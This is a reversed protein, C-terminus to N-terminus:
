VAYEGPRYHHLNDRVYAVTRALGQVRPVTSRWNLLDRARSPDAVLREVESTAPRIRTMDTEIRPSVGLIEFIEEALKGISIETGTGLQVVEGAYQDMTNGAALFGDVTDSVYTLDRTPHLAGLRVVGGVMAQAIIAPVIARASQRPGYTNFPRLVVARLGFSRHFSLVCQDAAIKSAAYPSQASLPHTETIPVIRATGYVESTSTHVLAAGTALCAQAVHLTGLVNVDFVHRTASYSYPVAILAALHYVRSCGDVATRVFYPDTIDGAIVEVNARAAVPLQDLQGRDGRGNYRVLARVPHGCAVLAEVLHSGIFGGAGTVLVREGM